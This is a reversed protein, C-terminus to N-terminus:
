FIVPKHEIRVFLFLYTDMDPNKESILNTQKHHIETSRM